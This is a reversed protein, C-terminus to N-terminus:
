PGPLSRVQSRPILLGASCAATHQLLDSRAAFRASRPQLSRCCIASHLSLGTRVDTRAPATEDSLMKPCRGRGAVRQRREAARSIRRLQRFMEPVIWAVCRVLGRCLLGSRPRTSRTRRDAPAGERERATEAQTSQGSPALGEFGRLACGKLPGVRRRGARQV